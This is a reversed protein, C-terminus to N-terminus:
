VFSLHPRLIMGDVPSDKTLQVVICIQRVFHIILFLIKILLIATLETFLSKVLQLYLSVSVM